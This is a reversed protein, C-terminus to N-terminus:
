LPQPKNTLTTDRGDRETKNKQEYDFILRETLPYTKYIKQLDEPHHRQLWLLYHVDTIDCGASQREGGYTEPRILGNDEIYRLVDANKYRSLPYSKMTKRNIAEDEYGRLMLRRNLSDSQKFGFFAWQIGTRKRVIETLDELTYKRQRENRECGLFGAKRYTIVGYHPVQVFRVNKYKRMSWGIYRNIHNLDKVTYMFVCVIEKFHPHMLDLLAISDKGSASHFLIARDTSASVSKIIRTAEQM